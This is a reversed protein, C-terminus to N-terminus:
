QAALFERVLTQTCDYAKQTVFSDIEKQTYGYEKLIQYAEKVTSKKTELMLKDFVVKINLKQVPRLVHRGCCALSFGQLQAESVEIPYSKECEPCQYNLVVSVSYPKLTKM